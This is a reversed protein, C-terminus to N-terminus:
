TSKLSLMLSGKLHDKALLQPAGLIVQLTRQHETQFGSGAAHGIQRALLHVEAAEEGEVLQHFADLLDAGGVHLADGLREEIRFLNGDCDEAVQVSELDAAFVQHASAMFYRTRARIATARTKSTLHMVM